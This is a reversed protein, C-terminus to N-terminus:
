SRMPVPKGYIIRQLREIELKMMRYDRILATININMKWEEM